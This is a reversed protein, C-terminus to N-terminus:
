QLWLILAPRCYLCPWKWVEVKHRYLLSPLARVQTMANANTRSGQSISSFWEWDGWSSCLRLLSSATPLCKMNPMESHYLERGPSSHWLSSNFDMRPGTTEMAIRMRGEAGNSSDATNTEWRQCGTLGKWLRHSALPDTPDPVGEPWLLPAVGDSYETLNSM